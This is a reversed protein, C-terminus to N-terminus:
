NSKEYNGAQPPGRNVWNSLNLWNFSDPYSKMKDISEKPKQSIIEVNEIEHAIPHQLGLGIFMEFPIM